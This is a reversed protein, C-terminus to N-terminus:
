ASPGVPARGQPVECLCRSNEERCGGAQRGQFGRRGQRRERPGEEGDGACAERVRGERDEGQGAQGSGLLGGERVRGEEKRANGQNEGHDRETVRYTRYAARPCCHGNYDFQETQGPWKPMHILARLQPSANGVIM